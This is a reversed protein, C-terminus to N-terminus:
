TLLSWITYDILGFNYMYPSSVDYLSMNHVDDYYTSLGVIGHMFVYVYVYLYVYLYANHCM